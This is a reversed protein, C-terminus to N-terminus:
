LYGRLMIAIGIFMIIIGVNLATVGGGGSAGVGRLVGPLVAAAM